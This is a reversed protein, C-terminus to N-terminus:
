RRARTLNLIKKALNEGLVQEMQVILGPSTFNYDTILGDILDIAAWRIKSQKLRKSIAPLARKEKATLPAARVSGGSDMNIISEGSKPLKQAFALLKGDIWWTRKEGDLIAPRYAQLAQPLDMTSHLDAQSALAHHLDRSSRLIAVGKSQATNLPKLVVTGHQKLFSEMEARDVTILTAPTLKRDFLCELKESRSFLSELPNVLETTRELEALRMLQLPLLYSLDVPPDPRYFAQSFGSLVSRKPASFVFSGADLRDPANKLERIEATLRGQNWTITKFDCWHVSEGQIRAEQMVRLSTDRPHDLTNWPDTIFLRKLRKRM